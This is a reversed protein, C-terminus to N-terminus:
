AEKGLACRLARKAHHLRSKVTGDPIDLVHAIEDTTMDELFFLTLVERHTLGLQLLGHHIQEADEFNRRGVDELAQSAVPYDEQNDRQAARLHGLNIANNRAIRYLWPALNRPEKLTSIGRMVKLWTQQLVDWADHEENVLRRIFYFLPREWTNVLEALAVRDGRQCRLVLLEQYILEKESRLAFCEQTWWLLLGAFLAAPEINGVWFKSLPRRDFTHL